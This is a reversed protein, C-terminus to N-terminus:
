ARILWARRALPRGITKEIQSHPEVLGQIHAGPTPCRHRAVPSMWSQQSQLLSQPPMPTACMMSWTASRWGYAPGPWQFSGSMSSTPLPPSVGASFRAWKLKQARSAAGSM